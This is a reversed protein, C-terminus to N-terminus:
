LIINRIFLYIDYEVFQYLLSYKFQKCNNYNANSQIRAYVLLKSFLTQAENYYM